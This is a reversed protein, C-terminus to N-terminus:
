RRGEIYTSFHTDRDNNNPRWTTDWMNCVRHVGAWWAGRGMANGLWSYQLPNGKGERIDRVYGCFYTDRHVLVYLNDKAKWVERGEMREEKRQEPCMYLSINIELMYLSIQLQLLYDVLIIAKRQEKCMYLSVTGRIFTGHPDSM